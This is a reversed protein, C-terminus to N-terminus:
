PIRGVLNRRMGAAQEAGLLRTYYPFVFKDLASVSFFVADVSRPVPVTRDTGDRLRITITVREIDRFPMFTPPCYLPIMASKGDHHCQLLFVPGMRSDPTTAYPGFIIPRLAASRTVAAQASDRNEFVGLVDLTDVESAVVWVPAGTRHGDVAEAVRLLLRATPMPASATRRPQALLTDHAVLPRLLGAAVLAAVLLRRGVVGAVRSGSLAVVYM